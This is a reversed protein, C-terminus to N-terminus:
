SRAGGPRWRRRCAASRTPSDDLLATPVCPADAALTSSLYGKDANWAFVDAGNLLPTGEEVKRAWALFEATRRHYDWTTRVAVLDAPPGTSVSDYDWVVWRHVRDRQSPSRASVLPCTRWGPEGEPLLCFTALLVTM